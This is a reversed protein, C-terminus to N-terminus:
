LKKLYKALVSLSQTVEGHEIIKAITDSSEKKTAELESKVTAQFQIHEEKFQQSTKYFLTELKKLKQELDDLKHNVEERWYGSEANVSSYTEEVKQRLTELDDRPYLVEKRIMELKKHLYEYFRIGPRLFTLLLVLVASFYGVQSVQFHAVLFLGVASLIHLTISTILSRKAVSRAFILGEEKFSINKLRSIEAEYMIERAKFYANWPITVVFFMWILSLSGVLWDLFEGSGILKYLGFGSALVLLSFILFSLFPNM